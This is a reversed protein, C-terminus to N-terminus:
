FRARVNLWFRNQAFFFFFFNLQFNENKKVVKFTYQMPM